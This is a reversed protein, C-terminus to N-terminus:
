DNCHQWGLISFIETKYVGGFKVADTHNLTLTISIKSKTITITEHDIVIVIVIFNRIKETIQTIEYPIEHDRQGKHTTSLVSKHHLHLWCLEM